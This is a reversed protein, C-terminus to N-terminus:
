SSEPIATGLPCDYDSEPSKLSCVNAVLRGSHQELLIIGIQIHWVLMRAPYLAAVLGQIWTQVFSFEEEDLRLAPDYIALSSWVNHSCGDVM